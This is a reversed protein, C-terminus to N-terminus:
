LVIVALYSWCILRDSWNKRVVTTAAVGVAMASFILPTPKLQVVPPRKSRSDLYIYPEKVSYAGHCAARRQVTCPGANSNRKSGLGEHQPAKVDAGGSTGWQFRIRARANREWQGGRSLARKNKKRKKEKDGQKQEMSPKSKDKDTEAAQSLTMVFVSGVIAAIMIMPRM